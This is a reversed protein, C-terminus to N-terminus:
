IFVSKNEVERSHRYSLLYLPGGLLTWQKSEVIRNKSIFHLRPKYILGWRGFGPYRLKLSRGTCGRKQFIKMRTNVYAADFLVMLFPM